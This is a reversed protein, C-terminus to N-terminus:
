ALLQGARETVRTLVRHATALDGPDFGALPGRCTDWM